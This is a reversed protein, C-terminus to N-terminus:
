AEKVFKGNSVEKEIQTLSLTQMKGHEPKIDVGNRRIATIKGLNTETGIQITPTQTVENKM